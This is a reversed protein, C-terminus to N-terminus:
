ESTARFCSAWRARAAPPPLLLLPAGAGRGTCTRRGLESRPALRASVGKWCVTQETQAPAACLAQELLAALVGRRRWRRELPLEGEVPLALAGAEGSAVGPRAADASPARWRACAAAEAERAAAWAPARAAASSTASSDCALGLAQSAACAAAAAVGALSATARSSRWRACSSASVRRSLSALLWIASTHMMSASALELLALEPAALARRRRDNGSDTLSTAAHHVAWGGVSGATGKNVKTM